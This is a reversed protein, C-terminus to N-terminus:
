RAVLVSKALSRLPLDVEFGGPGAKLFDSAPRKAKMLGATTHMKSALLYHGLEHALARGLVRALRTRLDVQTMRGSATPGEVERILEMANEYSLYIDPTPAGLEDFIIWGIALGTHSEPGSSDCITVRLTSWSGGVGDAIEWSFTVDAARWIAEAEALTREVLAQPLDTLTRVSVSIPPIVVAVALAVVTLM